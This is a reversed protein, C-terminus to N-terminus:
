RVTVVPFTTALNAIRDATNPAATSHFTGISVLQAVSRSVGLHRSLLPELVARDTLDTIARTMARRFAEIVLPRDEVLRRTTLWGKLPLNATPSTSGALDIVQAAGIRHAQTKIPEPVIAADVTGAELKDIIKPLPTLDWRLHATDIGNIHLTSQLALQPIPDNADVAIRATALDDLHSVRSNPAAVVVLSGDSASYADAIITVTDPGTDQPPATDPTPHPTPPTTTLAALYSALGIDVTGDRVSTVSAADSEQVVTSLHIGEATFYGRQQAQILALEDIGGLLGVRVDPLRSAADPDGSNSLLGCSSAMVTVLGMLTAVRIIARPSRARSETTTLPVPTPTPASHPVSTSQAASNM